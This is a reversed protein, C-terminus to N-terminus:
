DIDSEYGGSDAYRAVDLWHRGWREGYHPTALLRDVLDKYAADPNAAKVFAEVEDPAPPLGIVDFTVRRILVRDDAPRAPTLRRAQLGALIFRDIDNRVKGAKRVVPPEVKALPRFAWHQRDERTVTRETRKAAPGTGEGPWAAGAEIWKRLTA